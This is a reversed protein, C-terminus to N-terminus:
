FSDIVVLAVGDNGARSSALRWVGFALHWVIRTDCQCNIKGSFIHFEIDKGM